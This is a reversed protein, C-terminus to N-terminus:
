HMRLTSSQPANYVPTRDFFPKVIRSMICLIRYSAYVCGQAVTFCFVRKDLISKTQLITKSLGHLVANQYWHCSTQFLNDCITDLAISNLLFDRVIM